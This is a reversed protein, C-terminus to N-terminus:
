TLGGNVYARGIWRYLIIFLGGYLHDLAAFYQRPIGKKEIPPLTIMIYSIHVNTFM